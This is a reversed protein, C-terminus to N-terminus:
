FVEIENKPIHNQTVTISVVITGIPSVLYAITGNSGNIIREPIKIPFLEWFRREFM